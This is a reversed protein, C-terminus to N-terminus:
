GTEYAMGAHVSSSSASVAGATPCSDATLSVARFVFM